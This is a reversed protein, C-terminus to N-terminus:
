LFLIFTVTFYCELRNNKIEERMSVIVYALFHLMTIINIVNQKIKKQLRFSCKIM